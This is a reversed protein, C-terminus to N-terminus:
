CSWSIITRYSVRARRNKIGGSCTRAGKPRSWNIWGEAMLRGLEQRKEVLRRTWEEVVGADAAILKVGFCLFIANVTKIAQNTNQVRLVDRKMVQDFKGDMQKMNVFALALVLMTIFTLVSFAVTLKQGINLSKM